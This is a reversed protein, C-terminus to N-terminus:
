ACTRWTTRWAFFQFFRLNVISWWIWAVVNWWLSVVHLNSWHGVIMMARPMWSRNWNSSTEHIALITGHCWVLWRCQGFRGFDDYFHWWYGGLVDRWWRALEFHNRLSSEAWRWTGVMRIFKRADCAKKWFGTETKHGLQLSEQGGPPFNCLFNWRFSFSKTVNRWGSRVKVHPGHEFDFVSTAIRLKVDM